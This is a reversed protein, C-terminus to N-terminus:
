QLIRSIPSLKEVGKNTTPITYFTDMINQNIYSMPSKDSRPILKALTAGVNVFYKNSGNSIVKKDSTKVNNVDFITNTSSNRNKNIVNKIIEWTKRMNSKHKWLQEKLYEKEGIRLLHNLKNRYQKYKHMIDPNAKKHQSKICLENKTKISEKLDPTLWPKKDHYSCKFQKKPFSANYAELIKSHFITFSAETDSRSYRM